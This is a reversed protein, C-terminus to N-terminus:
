RSKSTGSNSTTPLRNAVAVTLQLCHSAAAAMRAFNASLYSSQISMQEQPTRATMMQRFADINQATQAKMLDLWFGAGGNSTKITSTALSPVERAMEEAAAVSKAATREVMASSAEVAERTLKLSKDALDRSAEVARNTGPKSQETSKKDNASAIQPM